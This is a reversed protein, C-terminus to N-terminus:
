KKENMEEQKAMKNVEEIGCYFRGSCATLYLVVFVCAYLLGLRRLIDM